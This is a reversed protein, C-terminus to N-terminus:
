TRALPCGAGSHDSHGTRGIEVFVSRVDELEELSKLHIQGSCESSLCIEMSVSVHQM